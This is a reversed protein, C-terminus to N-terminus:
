DPRARRAERRAECERAFRRETLQLGEDNNHGSCLYVTHEEGDEDELGVVMGHVPGTSCLYCGLPAMRVGPSVREGM